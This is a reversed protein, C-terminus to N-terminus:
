NRGAEFLVKSAFAIGAEVAADDMFMGMHGAFPKFYQETVVGVQKLRTRLEASNSAPVLLDSGGNFFFTPPDDSTAFTVPSADRYIAPREGPTGGLFAVLWSNEPHLKTFDCPAGGAICVMPRPTSATPEVSALAALHGGASYGWIGLRSADVKLTAQNDAIYRLAARVDDLQAPFRYKPALRYNISLVAIGAEAIQRSHSAIHWKNGAVWGGGHIVLMIPPNDIVDPRLFDALLNYEDGYGYVIDKQITFSSPSTISEEALTVPEATTAVEASNLINDDASVFNSLSIVIVSAVLSRIM